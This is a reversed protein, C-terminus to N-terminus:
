GGQSGPAAERDRLQRYADALVGWTLVGIPATVLLSVLQGATRDALSVVSGVSGLVGAVATVVLLIALLRWRNGRALGWSRRLAPVARADEVGIEFVVFTFSVALFVGPVVLLALGATVAVSVVANAGIASVVARGMRRTFLGAAVRGRAPAPRAFARAAALSVVMGALMALGAIVGAVPASMPLTFGIGAEARVAPPLAAALLTNVAAVFVLTYGVTLLVLLLGVPTLARRVGRGIATGVRLTM